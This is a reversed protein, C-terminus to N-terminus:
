SREWDIRALAARERQTAMVAAIFFGISMLMTFLVGMLIFVGKFGRQIMADHSVMVLLYPDAVQLQSQPQNITLSLEYKEGAVGQFDAFSHKWLFRDSATGVSHRNHDKVSWTIASRPITRGALPIPSHEGSHNEGRIVLLYEASYRPTFTTTYTGTQDFRFPLHVPIDVVQFVMPWAVFGGIVAILLLFAAAQRYLKARENM